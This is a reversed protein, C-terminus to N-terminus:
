EQTGPPVPTLEAGRLEIRGHGALSIGFGIATAEAPVPTTVEHWTWDSSGPATPSSGHDLLPARLPGDATTELRNRRTGKSMPSLSEGDILYGDYRHAVEIM